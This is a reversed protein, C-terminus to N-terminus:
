AKNISTQAIDAESPAGGTGEQDVVGLSEALLQQLWEMEMQIEGRTPMMKALIALARRALAAALEDRGFAQSIAAAARLDRVTYTQEQRQKFWAVAQEGNHLHYASFYAAEVVLRSRLRPAKPPCCDLADRLLSDAMGKDGSDLAWFYALLRAVVADPSRDRSALAQEVRERSFQRPRCGGQVAALLAWIAV